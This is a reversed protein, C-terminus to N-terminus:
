RRFKFLRRWVNCFILRSINWIFVTQFHFLKNVEQKRKHRLEPRANWLLSTKEGVLKSLNGFIYDFAVRVPDQPVPEVPQRVVHVREYRDDSFNLQVRIYTKHPSWTISWFGIKLSTWWHNPSLWSKKIKQSGLGSSDIRLSELLHRNM